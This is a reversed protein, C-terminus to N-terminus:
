RSVGAGHSTPQRRDCQPYGCQLNHLPCGGPKKHNECHGTTYNPPNNVSAGVEASTAQMAADTAKDLDPGFVFDWGGEDAMVITSPTDSAANGSSDRLWRYRAADKADTSGGKPSADIVQQAADLKTLFENWQSYSISYALGEGDDCEEAEDQLANCTEVLDRLALDIGPAAPTSLVPEGMHTPGDEANMANHLRNFDGEATLARQKWTELERAMQSYAQADWGDVPAAAVPAAYLNDGVKLGHAEIIAAVPGTGIWHLSFCSGIVAVAEQAAAPKGVEVAKVADAYGAQYGNRHASAAATSMDAASFGNM